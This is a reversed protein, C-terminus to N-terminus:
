KNRYKPFIFYIRKLIIYSIYQLEFNEDFKIIVTLFTISIDVIKSIFYMIDKQFYFEYNKYPLLVFFDELNDILYDNYIYNLNKNNNDDSNFNATMIFNNPILLNILIYGLKLYSISYDYSINKFLNVLIEGAYEIFFDYKEFLSIKNFYDNLSDIGKEKNDAENSSCLKLIQEINKECLIYNYSFPIIFGKKLELLLKKYPSINLIYELYLHMKRIIIDFLLVGKIKQIISFFANTLLIIKENIEFIYPFYEQTLINNIIKKLELKIEFKITVKDKIEILDNLINENIISFKFDSKDKEKNIELFIDDILNLCEKLKILIKNKKDASAIELFLNEFSNQLEGLTDM